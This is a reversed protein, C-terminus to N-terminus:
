FPMGAEPTMSIKKPKATTGKAKSRKANYSKWQASARASDYEENKKAM